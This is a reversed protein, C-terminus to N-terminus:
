RNEGRKRNLFFGVAMLWLGSLATGLVALWNSGTQPLAKADQVAQAAAADGPKGDLADPNQANGPLVTSDAPTTDATATDQVPSDAPTDPAAPTGPKTGPTDPDTPEVPAPAVYEYEEEKTAGCGDVTCTYRKLGKQEPTAERIIVGKDWAHAEDVDADAPYGVYARNHIAKLLTGSSDKMNILVKHAEGLSDVTINALQSIAHDLDSAIATVITDSADGNITVNGKTKFYDADPLEGNGIAFPANAATSGFSEGRMKGATATVNGGSISINTDSSGVGISTNYGGGIGAAGTAGAANEVTTNRLNITTPFSAPSDYAGTGIGAGGKNDAGAGGNIDRLISDILEITLFGTKYGGGIGAAGAGGVAKKVESGSITLTSGNNYGSGFGIGASGQETDTNEALGIVSNNKITITSPAGGQYKGTGIGAAGTGRATGVKGNSITINATGAIGGIGAGNKGIANTVSSNEFLIEALSGGGIGAGQEGTVSGLVTGKITVGGRGGTGAGIGTGGKGTVTDFKSDEITVDAWAGNGSGIGTTSGTVTEIGTKGLIKVTSYRDGGIGVGKKGTVTTIKGGSITVTAKGQSGIGAGGNGTVTSIKGNNITVTAECGLGGIGTGGKGTITDVQSGDITIDTTGNNGMGIGTVSGTVTEVYSNGTIKITSTSGAASNGIGTGATGTASTVHSHDITVNTNGGNSGIGANGGTVTGVDSKGTISVNTNAGGGIGAVGGLSELIKSNIIKITSGQNQGAYGTGIGSGRSGGTAKNVTSDQITVTGDTGTSIGSYNTGEATITSGGEITVKGNGGAGVGIGGSGKGAVTSNKIKVTADGGNAAGVGAGGDGGTGTVTSAEITVNANGSSSSGVGSGSGNGTATVNSGNKITITADGGGIGAGGGYYGDQTKNSADKVTVHDLTIDSSKSGAGTGIGAGWGNGTAKEITTDKIKITATEENNRSRGTGIGSGGESGGTVTGITANSITIDANGGQGSGIGAGSNGYGYGNYNGNANEITGGTITINADGGQGSGIGAGGAGGVAEKITGGTINIIADGGDGSGIGAGVGGKATVTGGKITINADGGAAGGIAAGGYANANVTGGNITVTGNGGEVTGDKNRIVWGGGIAASNNGDTATRVTIDGGNIVIDGSDKGAKGGIAACWGSTADLTGGDKNNDNINLTGNKTLETDDKNLKDTDNFRIAAGGATGGVLTNSGDLEINTTGAGRVSVASRTNTVSDDYDGSVGYYGKEWDSARDSADINVNDLTINAVQNEDETKVEVTSDTEKGNSTITVQNDTEAKSGDYTNGNGDEYYVRSGDDNYHTVQSVYHQDDRVDVYVDGHNLDYTGAFASVSCSAIMALFTATSFIRLVTRNPKSHKAQM